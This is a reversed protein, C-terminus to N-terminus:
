VRFGLGQVKTIGLDSKPKTASTQGLQGLELVSCCKPIIHRQPKPNLTKPKPNLTKPKAFKLGLFRFASHRM